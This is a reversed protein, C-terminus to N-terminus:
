LFIIVNKIDAIRLLIAQNKHMSYYKSIYTHRIKQSNCPVNLEFKKWDKKHSAFDIVKRNYQDIIPKIKLIRQPDKVINTNNCCISLM